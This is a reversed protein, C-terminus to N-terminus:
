TTLHESGVVRAIGFDMVKVDGSTTVMVNAPKLDRHVIGARHAHDLADLVQDCIAVAGAVPLPGQRKLLQECTEGAVFEMVMLLDDRERSLEHIMAIRHHSVKALTIAEGRFRQLTEPQLLEAHIMKIAVPRDLTEDIAKYVTGMGGRGLQEVFRYKGITRGVM